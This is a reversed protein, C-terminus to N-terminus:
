FGGGQEAGTQASTDQDPGQEADDAGEEPQPVPEPENYGGQEAEQGLDDPPQERSEM